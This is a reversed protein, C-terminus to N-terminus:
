RRDEEIQEVEALQMVMSSELNYLCDWFRILFSGPGQCNEAAMQGAVGTCILAATAAEAQKDASAAFAGIVASAMCGFGTVLGMMAHGNRITWVNQGDSVADEQGTVVAVIKRKQAFTRVIEVLDPVNDAADVGRSKGSLGALWGM